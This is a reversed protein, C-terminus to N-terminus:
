SQLQSVSGPPWIQCLFLRQCNWFRPSKWSKTNTSLVVVVVAVAEVLVSVAEIIRDPAITVVVAAGPGGAGPRAPPKKLLASPSIDRSKSGGLAPREAFKEVLKEPAADKNVPAAVPANAQNQRDRYQQAIIQDPTLPRGRSDLPAAQAPQRPPLNTNQVPNQPPGSFRLPPNAQTTAPKVEPGKATTQAPAAPEAVVPAPQPVEVKVEVVPEVKVPEATAQKAEQATEVVEGLQKRRQRDLLAEKEAETARSAIRITREPPKPPLKAEVNKNLRVSPTAKKM